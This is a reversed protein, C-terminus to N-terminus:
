RFFSKVPLETLGAVPLLHVTVHAGLADRLLLLLPATRQGEESLPNMVSVVSLPSSSPGSRFSTLAYTDIGSLQQRGGTPPAPTHTHPPPPLPPPLCLPKRAERRCWAVRGALRPLTPPPPTVQMHACSLTHSRRHM